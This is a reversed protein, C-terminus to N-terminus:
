IPLYAILDGAKRAGDDPDRVILANAESMVSLLSSDQRDFVTVQGSDVRGRTYHERPGNAPIDKTLAASLRARPEPAFGLFARILPLMFVHGCVMASVPNGPLGVMVADGMRGAMLPKGPRMKVKYFSQQLGMQQAVAGVLDHDGVSAGGITIVLDAGEALEFATQISAPNDKAIPLIRAIAGAQDFLAKLGFTNSVIIQDRGPTDGPMVLEDGTSILAIDPKRAVTVTPINMSALLAIDNPGLLRPATLTFGETFDNGAPRINTNQGPDQDITITNVFRDVDEQIVVFDVGEPVPAGTFIRVAEGPGVTGDFGHGAASEGIIKFKAGLQVESARVGYGDMASAAFPPQTRKAVADVAMVRGTAQALPVDETGLPTVLAFLQELAENVTIM